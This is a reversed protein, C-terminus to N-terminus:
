KTYNKSYADLTVIMEKLNKFFFGVEDDAEFAERMDLEEIKEYAKSSMQTIKDFYENKLLIDDEYKEVKKLLNYNIFLSSLLGVSLIVIAILM